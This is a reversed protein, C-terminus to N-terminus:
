VMSSASSAVTPAPAQPPGPELGRDPDPDPDPDPDSESESESKTTAARDAALRRLHVAHISFTVSNTAVVPWAGLLVGYGVFALAGVIGILRLRAISKMTLSVVILASGAFGLMEIM